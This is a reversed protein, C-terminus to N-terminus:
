IYIVYVFMLAYFCFMLCKQRSLLVSQHCLSNPLMRRSPILIKLWSSVHNCFTAVFLEIQCSALFPNLQIHKEAILSALRKYFIKAAPGLGGSTSFVLPTFYGLEVERVRAEYVRKKDLELRCYCQTLSEKVNSKTFPNFVKVDLYSKHRNHCWFNEAVIDVRADDADNTSSFSM